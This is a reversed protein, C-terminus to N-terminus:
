FQLVPLPSFATFISPRYFPVFRYPPFPLIPLDSCGAHASFHNFHYRRPPSFHRFPFVPLAGLLIFITFDAPSRFRYFPSTPFVALASFHYFAFIRLAAYFQSITFRYPRQPGLVYLITFAGAASFRCFPLIAFGTAARIHYFQYFPLHKIPRSLPLLPLITFGATAMTHYAHYFPLHTLTALVPLHYFPFGTAHAYQYFPYIPM